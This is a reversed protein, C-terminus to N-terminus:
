PITDASFYENVQVKSTMYLSSLRLLKKQCQIALPKNCKFVETLQAFNKLDSLGTITRLKYYLHQGIKSTTRDLFSFVENLDLDTWTHNSITHFVKESSKHNKFFQDILEFNFYQENKPKGWDQILKERKRKRRRKNLQIDILYVSILILIFGLIWNM